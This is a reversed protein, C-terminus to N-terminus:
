YDGNELGTFRYNGQEDTTNKETTGGPKTLTIKVGARGPTNADQIKIKKKDERVFGGLEYEPIEKKNIGLDASMNDQGNITVVNSIGNTNKSCNSAAKTTTDETTGGRNTLTVKVGAIGREDSDQLGDKNTYEWVFDGLAYTPIDKKYIGIDASM